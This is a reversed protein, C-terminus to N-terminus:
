DETAQGAPELPPDAADDIAGAVIWRRLVHLQDPNLPPRGKPMRPVIAGRVRSVLLSQGPRGRVVAPGSDGGRLLGAVATADFGGKPAQGSHCEYCHAALIPQVDRIYSVQGATDLDIPQVPLVHPEAKAAATELPPQRQNDTATEAPLAPEPEAKPKDPQAQAPVDEPKRLQDPQAPTDEEIGPTEQRRPEYPTTPAESPSVEFTKEKAPSQPSADLEEAAPARWQPGAGLGEGYVLRAHYQWLVLCWGVTLLAAVLALGLMAQQLGKVPLSGLGLFVLVVIGFMWLPEVMAQQREFLRWAEGSLMGAADVMIRQGAAMLGLGALALVAYVSMAVRLLPRRAEETVCAAYALPAGVLALVAPFQLLGAFLTHPSNLIEFVSM